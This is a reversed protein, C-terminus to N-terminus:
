TSTQVHGRLDVKLQQYPDGHRRNLLEPRNQELWGYFSLVDNDTRKETPRKLWLSLVQALRETAKMPPTM